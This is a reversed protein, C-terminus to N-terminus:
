LRRWDDFITHFSPRAPQVFHKPQSWVAQMATSPVCLDCAPICALMVAMGQSVADTVASWTFCSAKLLIPHQSLERMLPPHAAQLTLAAQCASSIAMPLVPLRVSLRCLSVFIHGGHKLLSSACAKCDGSSTLPCLIRVIATTAVLKTAPRQAPM